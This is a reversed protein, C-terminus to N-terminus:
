FTHSLLLDWVWQLFAEAGDLFTFSLSIWEAGLWELTHVTYPISDNQVRHFSKLASCREIPYISCLDSRNIFGAVSNVSIGKTKNGM